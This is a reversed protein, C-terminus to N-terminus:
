SRARPAGRLRYVPAPPERDLPDELTAKGTELAARHRPNLANARARGELVRREQRRLELVDYLLTAGLIGFFASVAFAGSALALAESALGTSAFLMMPVILNKSVYELKRVAVHGFWVGGFTATAAALGAYELTM